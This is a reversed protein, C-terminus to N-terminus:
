HPTHLPNHLSTRRNLQTLYLGKRHTPPLENSLSTLRSLFAVSRLRLSVNLSTTSFEGLAALSPTLPRSALAFRRREVLCGDFGTQETRKTMGFNNGVEQLSGFATDSNEDVRTM